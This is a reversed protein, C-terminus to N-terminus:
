SDRLHVKNTGRSDRWTGCVTKADIGLTKKRRIEFSETKTLILGYDNGTM